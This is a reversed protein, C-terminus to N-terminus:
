KLKYIHKVIWKKGLAEAFQERVSGGAKRFGTEYAAVYSQDKPPNLKLGLEKQTLRQDIRANKIALGIQQAETM